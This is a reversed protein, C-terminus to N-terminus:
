PGRMTSFWRAALRDRARVTVGRCVLARLTPPASQTASGVYARRRRGTHTRDPYSGPPGTAPKAQKTPFRGPDFRLTSTRELPLSQATRLTLRLQRTTQAPETFERIAAPQQDRDLGDHLL